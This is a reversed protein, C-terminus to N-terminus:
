GEFLAVPLSFDGISHALLGGISAGLVMEVDIRIPHHRSVRLNQRRLVRFVQALGKKSVDIKNIHVEPMHEIRYHGQRDTVASGHEKLDTVVVLADAVPKGAVTVTGEVVGGAQLTIDFHEPGPTRLIAVFRAVSEPNAAWLSLDEAPLASFEYRGDGDAVVRAPWPGWGRGKAQVATGVLVIGHAVPNGEGDVVRGGLRRAPGLLIELPKRLRSPLPGWSVSRSAYGARSALLDWEGGPVSRLEAQGNRDTTASAVASTLPRSQAIWRRAQNENSIPVGMPNGAVARRVVVDAGELPEGALNRVIVRLTVDTALPREALAEPSSPSDPEETSRVGTARETEPADDRLMSRGVYVTGFLAVLLSSAIMLRKKATMVTVGVAIASVASSFPRAIAM